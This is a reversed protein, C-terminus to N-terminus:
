RPELRATLAPWRPDAHLSQMRPDSPLWVLWHSREAFARDLRAFAADSDDLGVHVLAIGYSTAYRGAAALRDFEALVERADRDRGWIGCLYGRHALTPQWARLPGTAELEAMAAEYRHQETYIRGLWFRAPPFGPSLALAAQAFREAEDDHRAYHAVFAMDTQIAPSLPDFERARAIEARAEDPRGSMLLLYAYWQHATPARPDLALARRLSAEASEFNWDFYMQAYGLSAHAGALDPNLEVAQAAAARARLFSDEPALYNGYGLAAFADALGVYGPAYTPDADIAGQFERVAAELSAGDRKNWLHRGRVVADRAAAVTPRATGVVSPEAAASSTPAAANGVTPATGGPVPGQRRVYDALLAIGVAAVVVSGVVLGRRARRAAGGRALGELAFALDRASQFRLEPSKALCRRVLATVPDADRGSRALKPPEDRLIAATVEASSRGAFAAEGHLMEYLVAGLAFLDSRPDAPEGRVQEPAMYRLTGMVAQPASIQTETSGGVLASGGGGGAAVIGALGFDLIKARGDPTVFLNEPKLDRHVIGKEHAAALAGAIQAALGIAADRPLPGRRLRDRLSEGPLLESVLFPIGEHEGVDHVVLIGPHALAAAARAERTFRRLRDPDAAVEPPLLKVAVTRDLATDRACYVEGMGGAGLPDGIEYRGLLSGPPLPM